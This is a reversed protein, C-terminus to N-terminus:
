PRRDWPLRARVARASTEARAHGGDLDWGDQPGRRAALALDRRCAAVHPLDQAREGLLMGVGLVLEEALVPREVPVHVHVHVVLVHPDELPELRRDVLAVREHDQRRHGPASRRSALPCRAAGRERHARGKRRARPPYTPQERGTAIRESAISPGSSSFRGQPPLYASMTWAIPWVGSTSSLRSDGFGPTRM